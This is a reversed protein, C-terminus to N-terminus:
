TYHQLGKQGIDKRYVANKFSIKSVGAYADSISSNLDSGKGTVALVRGGHTILTGSDTLKTGAQFVLHTREAEKLGTLTMSKEYSAPYGKSAMVVCTWVKGDTKLTYEALSGTASRYLMELVDSTIAPMLIQCEPDGFRCNFEVVKAKGNHIMLGVYLVGKYPHGEEIMGHLLPQIISSTVDELIAKTVVPAPAYAGMGGTNPGTDGDGIRKHDQAAPLIVFDKGDCVAFVSAEEGLMYEEIVLKRSASQLTSNSRIEDLNRLAEEKTAPIFVGKGAALGDAKLVIPFTSCETIWQEADQLNESEFTLHDATPIRYKAMIEKAFSKSGELKAAFSDPGFVSIDHNQLYDAIGDVLPQEPGVVVLRIGEQACFAAVQNFHSPDLNVSEGLTVTGPNGPCVFLKHLFQSKSIAWALAHERGGSGILLVNIPSVLASM